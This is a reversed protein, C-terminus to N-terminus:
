VNLFALNFITADEYLNGTGSAGSKRRRHRHRHRHRSGSVMGSSRSVMDDPVMPQTGNPVAFKLEHSINYNQNHNTQPTHHHNLILDSGVLSIHQTGSQGLGGVWQDNTRTSNTSNVASM